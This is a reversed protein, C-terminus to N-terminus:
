DKFIESLKRQLDEGRLNKGIIVGNPDILFNQPIATVDYLKAAKNDWGDLSSVQTWTLQDHKIAALWKEKYTAGDLSVGLVTFGKDKHKQFEKAVNPNEARCPGCWSAWFDLLVYKGKFSSLSVPHGSTDNETFDFAKVGVATKMEKEAKAQEDAKKKALQGAIKSNAIAKQNAPLIDLLSDVLASTSFPSSSISSVLYGAIPSKPKKKVFATMEEWMPKFMNSMRMQVSTQLAKNTKFEPLAEIIKLSDGVRITEKIAERYDNEAQSGSGTVVFNALAKISVINVVGNDLMIPAMDYLGSHGFREACLTVFTLENLSGSFHYTGDANIKTSDPPAKPNNERQYLYMQKPLVAFDKLVGNITYKKKNTQALSNNNLAIIMVAIMPFLIGFKLNKM